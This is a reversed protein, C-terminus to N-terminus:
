RKMMQYGILDFIHILPIPVEGQEMVSGRQKYYSDLNNNDKQDTESLWCKKFWLIEITKVIM